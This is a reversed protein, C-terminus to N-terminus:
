PCTFESRSFYLTAVFHALLCWKPYWKNQQRHGMVITICRYLWIINWLSIFNYSILQNIFIYYYYNTTLKLRIQYKIIIKLKKELLKCPSWINITLQCDFSLLLNFLSLIQKGSYKFIGIKESWVFWPNSHLCLHRGIINQLYSFCENDTQYCFLNSNSKRLSYSVFSDLIKPFYIFAYWFVYCLVVTWQLRAICLLLM